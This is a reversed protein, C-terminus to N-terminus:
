QDDDGADDLRGEPPVIPPLGCMLRRLTVIAMVYLAVIAVLAAIVIALQTSSLSAVLLEPSEFFNLDFLPGGLLRQMLWGGALTALVSAWILGLARRVQRRGQGHARISVMLSVLGMVILVVVLM